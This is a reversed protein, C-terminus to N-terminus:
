KVMDKFPLIENYKTKIQNRDPYGLIENFYQEILRIASKESIKEGNLVQEEIKNFFAAMNILISMNRATDLVAGIIASKIPDIANKASLEVVDVKEELQKEEKSKFLPM